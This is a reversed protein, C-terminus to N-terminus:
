VTVSWSRMPMRPMSISTWQAMWGDPVASVAPRASATHWAWSTSSMGSM